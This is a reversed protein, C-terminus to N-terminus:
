TGASMGDVFDLCDQKSRECVSLDTTLNDYLTAVDSSGGPSSSGSSSCATVSVSGLLLVIARASFRIRPRHRIVNKM